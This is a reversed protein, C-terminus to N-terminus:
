FYIKLVIERSLHVPEKTFVVEDIFVSKIREGFKETMQLLRPYRLTAASRESHHRLGRLVCRTMTEAFVLNSSALLDEDVSQSDAFHVSHNRLLLETRKCPCCAQSSRKNRVIWHYAQKVTHTLEKPKQHVQFIVPSVFAGLCKRCWWVNFCHWCLSTSQSFMIRYKRERCPLLWSPQSGASRRLQTSWGLSPLGQRFHLRILNRVIRGDVELRSLFNHFQRPVSSSVVHNVPKKRHGLAKVKIQM